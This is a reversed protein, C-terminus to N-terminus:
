RAIAAQHQAMGYHLPGLQVLRVRLAHKLVQGIEPAIVYRENLDVIRVRDEFFVYHARPREGCRRLHNGAFQSSSQCIDARPTRRALAASELPVPRLALSRPAIRSVSLACTSGVVRDPFVSVDSHFSRLSVNLRQRAGGESLMRGKATADIRATGGVVLRPKNGNPEFPSRVHRCTSHLPEVHSLPITEDRRIATTTTLIHEDMNRGNLLSAQIVETLAVLDGVVDNWVLAFLTCLIQLHLSPPAM